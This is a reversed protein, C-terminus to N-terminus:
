NILPLSLSFSPLILIHPITPYKPLPLAVDNKILPNDFNSYLPYSEAPTATRLLPFISTLFNLPRKALKALSM